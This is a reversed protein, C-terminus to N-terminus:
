QKIVSNENILEVYVEWDSSLQTILTFLINRKCYLVLNSSLVILRVVRLFWFVMM